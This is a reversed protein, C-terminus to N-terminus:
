ARAFGAQYHQAVELPQLMRNYMQMHQFTGALTGTAGSGYNNIKFQGTKTITDHTSDLVLNGSIVQKGNVYARSVYDATPAESGGFVCVVHYLKGTTFIGAGSDIHNTGNYMRLNGGNTYCMWGNSSNDWDGAFATDTGLSTLVMWWEVSMNTEWSSPWVQYFTGALNSATAIKLAGAKSGPIIGPVATITGTPTLWGPGAVNQYKPGLGTLSDSSLPWWNMLGPTSAVVKEYPSLPWPSPKVITSAGTDGAGTHTYNYRRVDSYVGLPM